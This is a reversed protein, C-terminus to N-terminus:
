CINCSMNNEDFFDNIENAFKPFRKKAEKISAVTFDRMDFGPTMTCSILSFLQNDMLKSAIWQTPLIAVIQLVKKNFKKGLDAHIMPDGLIFDEFSNNKTDIICVAQPSGDCYQWYKTSKVHNFQTIAKELVMYYIANTVPRKGGVFINKDVEIEPGRYIDAILNGPQSHHEVLNYMEIYKKVKLQVEHKM